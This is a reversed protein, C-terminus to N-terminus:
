LRGVGGRSHQGRTAGPDASRPPGRMRGRAGRGRDAFYLAHTSQVACRLAGGGAIGEIRWASCFALAKHGGHLQVMDKNSRDPFTARMVPELRPMPLAMATCIAAWPARTTTELRLCSLQSFTAASILPAPPVAM